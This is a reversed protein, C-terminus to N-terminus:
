SVKVVVFNTAMYLKLNLEHSLTVERNVAIFRYNVIRSFYNFEPITEDCICDVM